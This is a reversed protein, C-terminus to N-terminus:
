MDKYDKLHNPPVKGKFYDKNIRIKYKPFLKDMIFTILIKRTKNNKYFKKVRDKTKQDLQEYSKAPKPTRKQIRRFRRGAGRNFYRKNKNYFEKIAKEGEKNIVSDVKEPILYWQIYSQIYRTYKGSKLRVKATYTKDVGRQKAELYAMIPMIFKEEVYKKIDNMKAPSNYKELEQESLNKWFFIVPVYIEEAVKIFPTAATKDKFLLNYDITVHKRYKNDLLKKLDEEFKKKYHTKIDNLVRPNKILEEDKLEKKDTIKVIIWGYPLKIPNSVYGKPNNYFKGIYPHGLDAQRIRNPDAMGRGRRGRYPFKQNFKVAVQKWKKGQKLENFAKMAQKKAEESKNKHNKNFISIQKYKIIKRLKEIKEKKVYQIDPKSPKFKGLKKQVTEYYLLQNLLQYNDFSIGTNILNQYISKKKAYSISEEYLAKKILFSRLQRFIHSPNIKGPNKFYKKYEKKIDSEKLKGQLDNFKKIKVFNEYSVTSFVMKLRRPSVSPRENVLEDQLEIISYTKDKFRAIDQKIPNPKLAYIIGTLLGIFVLTVGATTGIMGLYYSFKLKGDYGYDENKEIEETTNKWIKYCPILVLVFLVLTIGSKSMELMNGLLKGLLFLPISIVALAILYFLGTKFIKDRNPSLEIDEENFEQNETEENNLNEKSM